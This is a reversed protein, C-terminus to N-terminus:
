TLEYRLRVLNQLQEIDFKFWPLRCAGAVRSPAGYSQIVKVFSKTLSTSEARARPSNHCLGLENFMDFNTGGGEKEACFFDLPFKLGRQPAGSDRISNVPPVINSNM